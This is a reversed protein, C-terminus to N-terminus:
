ASEIVVRNKGKKKLDLLVSDALDFIGKAGLRAADRTIGGGITVTIRLDPVDFKLSEIGSRAREATALAESRDFNPLLIVFEDGGFRYAKGKGTSASALVEAIAVLARDASSHGVRDNVSKFDDIDVFLLCLLDGAKSESTATQVDALYAKKSALSVLVDMQEPGLDRWSTTSQQTAADDEASLAIKRKFHALAAENQREFEAIAAMASGGRAGGVGRSRRGLEDMVAAQRRSVLEELDKEISGKFSSLPLRSRRLSATLVDLRVRLLEDTREREIELIRVVAGNQDGPIPARSRPRQLESEAEDNIEKAAIQYALDAHNTVEQPLPARGGEEAFKKKAVADADAAREVIKKLQDWAQNPIKGSTAAVSLDSLERADLPGHKVLGSSEEDIRYRLDVISLAAEQAGYSQDKFLDELHQLQDWLDSLSM